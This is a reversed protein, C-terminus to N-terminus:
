GSTPQLKCNMQRGRGTRRTGASRGRRVARATCLVAALRVSPRAPRLPPRGAAGGEGRHRMARHRSCSRAAFRYNLNESRSFPRNTLRRGARGAMVRSHEMYFMARPRGERTRRRIACVRRRGNEAEDGARSKRGRAPMGSVHRCIDAQSIGRLHMTRAIKCAYVIALADAWEASCRSHEDRRTQKPNLM